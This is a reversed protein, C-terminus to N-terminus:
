LIKASRFKAIWNVGDLVRGHDILIYQGKRTRLLNGLNRDTNAILDDLAIISPSQGSDLM